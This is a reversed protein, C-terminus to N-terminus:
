YELLEYDNQEITKNKKIKRKTKEYLFYSNEGIKRKPLIILKQSKEFIKNMKKIFYENKKQIIIKTQEFKNQREKKKMIKNYEKPYKIKDEKKQQIVNNLIKEIYRLKDIINLENVNINREIPIYRLLNNFIIDIKEKVKYSIKNKKNKSNSLSKDIIKNKEYKNKIGDLEISSYTINNLLIKKKEVKEETEVLNELEKKLFTIDKRLSIYNQMSYKINDTINELHEYFENNNKFILTNEIPKKYKNLLSYSTKRSSNKNIYSFITLKRKLNQQLKPKIKEFSTRSENINNKSLEDIYNSILKKDYDLEKLDKESFKELLKTSNRVSMLYIKIQFYEKLLILSKSIKFKLRSIENELNNKIIKVSENKEFEKLLNEYIYKEYSEYTKFYSKLLDKNKRNLNMNQEYQGISNQLDDEYKSCFNKKLALLYKGKIESKIKEKFKLLNEARIKPFHCITNNKNFDSENPKLFHIQKEKSDDKNYTRNSNNRIKSNFYSSSSNNNSQIILEKLKIPINRRVSNSEKLIIQKILKNKNKNQSILHQYGENQKIKEKLYDKHCHNILKLNLRPKIKFYNHNISKLQNTTQTSQTLSLFIKNKSSKKLLQTKYSTNNHINENENSYNSESDSSIKRFKNKEM